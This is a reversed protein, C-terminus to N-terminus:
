YSFFSKLCITVHSIKSYAQVVDVKFASMSQILNQKFGVQTKSLEDTRELSLAVLKKWNAWLKTTKDIEEKAMFGPPLYHELCSICTLSTILNWM